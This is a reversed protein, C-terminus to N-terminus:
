VREFSGDPALIRVPTQNNFTLYVPTAPLGKDKFFHRITRRCFWRLCVDGLGILGAVRWIFLDGGYITLPISIGHGIPAVPIM